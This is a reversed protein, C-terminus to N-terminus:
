SLPVRRGLLLGIIYVEDIGCGNLFRLVLVSFGSAIGVIPSIRISFALEDGMQWFLM